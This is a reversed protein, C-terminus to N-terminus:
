PVKPRRWCYMTLIGPLLIWFTAPEPVGVNSSAGSGSHNGFIAKWVNYDAQDIKGASAGTNDGNARLDTTSGLTDRWVTYDAADVVGNQNYDGPLLGDSVVISDLTIAGFHSQLAAGNFHRFHGFRLGVQKLDAVMPVSVVLTDDWFIQSAGLSADSVIRISADGSAGLSNFPELISQDFLQIVRGGNHQHWGDSIGVNAILTGAGDRLEVYFRQMARLPDSTGNASNWSFDYTVEWSNDQDVERTKLVDVWRENTTSKIDTVLLQSGTTQAVWVDSLPQSTPRRWRPSLQLGDFSEDFATEPTYTQGSEYFLGSGLMPWTCCDTNWYSNFVPFMEQRLSADYRTLQLWTSVLRTNSPNGAGSGNVTETFGPSKRIFRFTNVLRQIDTDDFVIGAEYADIAFAVDLGAHSVDTASGASNYPAYRWTFRNSVPTLETKLTKALATARDYFRQEGTAKWLAIYTQGAASQMNYPLVGNTFPDTFALYPDNYQGRSGSILSFEPDFSDMTQIIDATLAAARAGYQSQLQPNGKIESIAFTVSHSQYASEVLWSHRRADAGESINFSVFAPMSRNRIQDLLPPNLRDARNAYMVEAHNLLLELYQTDRTAQYMAHHAIGLYTEGWTLLGGEYKPYPPVGNLYYSLYYDAPFTAAKNNFTSLAAATIENQTQCFAFTQPFLVGLACLPVACFRIPFQPGLKKADHDRASFNRRLTATRECWGPILFTFM